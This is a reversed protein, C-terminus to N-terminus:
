RSEEEASSGNCCWGSCWTEESEAEGIGAKIRASHKLAIELVEDPARLVFRPGDGGRVLDNGNGSLDVVREPLAETPWTAMRAQLARLEPAYAIDGIEESEFGGDHRDCYMDDAGAAGCQRTATRNCDPVWCVPLAMTLARAAARDWAQETRLRDREELAHQADAALALCEADLRENMGRLSENEAELRKVKEALSEGDQPPAIRYQRVGDVIDCLLAGDGFHESLAVRLAGEDVDGDSERFDAAIDDFSMWQQNGGLLDLTLAKLREVEADAM